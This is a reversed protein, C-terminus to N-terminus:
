DKEEYLDFSYRAKVLKCRQEIALDLHTGYLRTVWDRLKFVLVREASHRTFYKADIELRTENPFVWSSAVAPRMATILYGAPFAYYFVARGGRRIRPLLDQDVDDLLRLKLTSTWLGRYPGREVRAPLDDITPGDRYICEGKYLFNVMILLVVLPASAPAGYARTAPAMEMTARALLVSSALAGPFLGVAGAIGNNTSTWMTILGGFFAPLWLLLLVRRAFERDRLTLGVPVALLSYYILFAATRLNGEWSSWAALLPLAFLVLKMVRPAWRCGVGIVVLLAPIIWPSVPVAGYFEKLSLALKGKGGV